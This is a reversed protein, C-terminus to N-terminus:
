CNEVSARHLKDLHMGLGSNRGFGGRKMVLQCIILYTVLVNTVHDSDM